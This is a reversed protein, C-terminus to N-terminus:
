KRNKELPKATPPEVKRLGPMRQGDTWGIGNDKEQGVIKLHYHVTSDPKWIPMNDPNGPGIEAILLSGRSQPRTTQQPPNINYFDGPNPLATFPYQNIM